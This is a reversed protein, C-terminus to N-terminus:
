RNKEKLSGLEGNVTLSGWGGVDKDRNFVNKGQQNCQSEIRPFKKLRLKHENLAIFIVSGLHNFSIANWRVTSQGCGRRKGSKKGRRGHDHTV